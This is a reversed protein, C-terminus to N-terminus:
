RGLTSFLGVSAALMVVTAIWGVFRLYPPLTFEGMVKQSAAMRMTVVMLPVSVVGNIVASWFLARIPNLGVFDLSLGVLTAVALVGYFQKAKNPRSELSAHWRFTEAVGYAASGALVPVALLGTGIIGLAFLGFAFRGALPELAKAAQASTEVDRIGAAHLTAATTLIIFLAVANSLAMGAYTDVRIRSFQEAAQWPARRLAQEQRNNRVDEAEQSAQWFFLYPSITTGLVATLTTFYKANLSVSPLFTSRLAVRWDVHAVFATLVYAFLALTLWKLYKVYTTYPIYVQLILSLAAFGFVYPLFSGGFLLQGAAGMAGLDAGLNFVNALCLLSVIGFLLPRPYHRRMNGAIGVGTVRGIRACIEQIVMMLPYSFLMVWTMGYGFQAGTQSYTAIGSPDDDSAGTILGPGLKELFTKNPASASM